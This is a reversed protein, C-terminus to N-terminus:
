NQYCGTQCSHLFPLFGVSADQVTPRSLPKGACQKGLLSTTHSDIGSFLGGENKRDSGTITRLDTGPDEKQGTQTSYEAYIKILLNLLSGVLYLGLGLLKAILLRYCNLPTFLEKVTSKMKKVAENKFNLGGKDIEVCTNSTITDVLEIERQCTDNEVPSLKNSTNKAM